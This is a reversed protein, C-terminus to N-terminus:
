MRVLANTEFENDGSKVVIAHGFESNLGDSATCPFFDPNLLSKKFTLTRNGGHKCVTLSERHYNQPCM